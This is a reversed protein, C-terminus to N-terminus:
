AERASGGAEVLIALQPCARDCLGCGNCDEARRVMVPFVGRPSLEGSLEFIAPKCFFLCIGCGDCLDPDVHVAFSRARVGGV